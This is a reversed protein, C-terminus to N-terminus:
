NLMTGQWMTLGSGKAVQVYPHCMNNAETGSLCCLCCCAACAAVPLVPPLLCLLCLLCCCAAVRFCEGTPEVPVICTTDDGREPSLLALRIFKLGPSINFLHKYLIADTFFDETLEGMVHICVQHTRGLVGRAKAVQFAQLGTLIISANLWKARHAPTGPIYDGLARLAIDRSAAFSATSSQAASAMADALLDIAPPANAMM